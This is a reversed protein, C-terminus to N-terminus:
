SVECLNPCGQLFSSKCVCVCVCVVRGGINCLLIHLPFSLSFYSALNSQYRDSTSKVYYVCVGLRLATVSSVCICVHM